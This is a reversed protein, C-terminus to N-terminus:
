NEDMRCIGAGRIGILTKGLPKWLNVGSLNKMKGFTTKSYVKVPQFHQEVSVCDLAEVVVYGLVQVLVLVLRTM